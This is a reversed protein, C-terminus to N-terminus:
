NICRPWTYQAEGKPLPEKPSSIIAVKFTTYIFTWCNELKVFAHVILINCDYIVMTMLSAQVLSLM